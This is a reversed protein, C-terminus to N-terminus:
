YTEGAERSVSEILSQALRFGKQRLLELLPRVEKVLGRQKAALLFGAVGITQLGAAQAAKRAKLDDVLIVACSMEQALVLSEAEGPGLFVRLMEAANRNEIRHEEVLRAQQMERVGARGRGCVVVEEWVAPAVYLKEVMAELLNWQDILCLGILFSADAVAIIKATEGGAM